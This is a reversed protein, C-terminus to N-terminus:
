LQQLETAERCLVDAEQLEHNQQAKKKEQRDRLKNTQRQRVEEVRSQAGSMHDMIEAKEQLACM